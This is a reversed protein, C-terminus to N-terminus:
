RFEKSGKLLDVTTLEYPKGPTTSIKTYDMGGDISVSKCMCANSHHRFSSFVIDGCTLCKIADRYRYKAIKQPTMGSIMLRDEIRFLMFYKKHGLSKDPSKARYFAAPKYGGFDFTAVYECEGFKRAVAKHDFGYINVDVFSQNTPTPKIKKTRPM